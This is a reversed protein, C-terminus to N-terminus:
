QSEEKKNFMVLLAPTVLLTIITSFILGGAITTSLETWWQTSPSGFQITRSFFNINLGLVMPMLGLTTTISTLLVPRLRTQGAKIAANFVNNNEKVFQNFTDILIINNNVVIGALSIIGIGSMVIGFPRGTFMLGLLVGVISFVIATMVVTSQWISNFQTVLIIFMIFVAILFAISLFQMAKQQDEAEGAFDVSLNQSLDINDKIFSEIKRIQSDVQYNSAVNAEVLTYEEGEFRSIVGSKESPFITVFNRIPIMGQNTPSKLDGLSTLTRFKEPFRVVIDMEDLSNDPTFNTIVVGDTILKITEGISAISAGYKAALERDVIINWEVGINPITDTIDTFGGIQNYMGDIIKKVTDTRLTNDNSLIKFKIPKGGGPGSESEQVQITIGAVDREINRIDESIETFKRRLNWDILEIQIVGVIDSSQENSEFSRSYINKIESISKIKEEVQKVIYDKEFISLNDENKIQVQAFEPEISPFFSVGNNNTIFSQIVISMLLLAIIITKRANFVIWTLIITYFKSNSENNTNLNNIKTKKITSGIVPIFVLAMFLASSLTFLVTIPLYKMFQGVIENWFLLPLFVCLTTATSAIIPWSMRKASYKFAEKPSYGQEIKRDAYETTVIAGDVLLGVVLILSFLVVINLTYGSLYLIIIGSLFASPISLGILISSKLGLSFIIVLMVLIIAAAISNELDSLMTKVQKSEDQLYIVDFVEKQPHIKLTEKIKDITSIINTGVKKTVELSIAKNGNIRTFGKPSKPTRKITAIDSFKVIRQERIKIPINQIDEINEILGPVKLILDGTESKIKGAAILRNNSEVQQIIENLSLNYSELVYPEIIIEIIDERTGGIDVELVGQLKEIDDKLNEALQTFINKPLESSIIITLIPFLATNIETIIPETADEPLKVKIKDVADRTNELAKEVEYGPEFELSVSAKGELATSSYSKLGEISSIETEMPKLLLRTADQPSIGSLSTSVYAQPIPVEPASEKSINLYSFFGIFLISCFILLITKSKDFAFDIFSQM